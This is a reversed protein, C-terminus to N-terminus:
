KKRVTHSKGSGADGAMVFLQPRDEAVTAVAPPCCRLIAAKAEVYPHPPLSLLEDLLANNDLENTQPTIIDQHLLSNSKNLLKYVGRQSAELIQEGYCRNLRILLSEDGSEPLWRNPKVIVMDDGCKTYPSDARYRSLLHSLVEAENCVPVSILNAREGKWMSANFKM